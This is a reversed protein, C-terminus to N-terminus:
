PIESTDDDENHLIVETNRYSALGAVTLSYNAPASIITSTHIFLRLGEPTCIYRGDQTILNYEDITGADIVAEIDDNIRRHLNPKTIGAEDRTIDEPTALKAPGQALRYDDIM